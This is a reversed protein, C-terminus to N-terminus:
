VLPPSFRHHISSAPMSPIAGTVVMGAMVGPIGVLGLPKLMDLRPLLSTANAIIMSGVPVLM